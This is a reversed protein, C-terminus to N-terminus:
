FTFRPSPFTSNTTTATPRHSRFIPVCSRRRKKEKFKIRFILLILIQAWTWYSLFRCSSLLGEDGDVSVTTANIPCPGLRGQIEIMTGDDCLKIILYGEKRGILRLKVRLREDIMLVFIERKGSGFDLSL